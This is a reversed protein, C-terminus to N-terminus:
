QKTENAFILEVVETEKKRREAPVFGVTRTDGKGTITWAIDEMQKLTQRKKETYSSCERIPFPVRHEPYTVMCITVVESERFGRSIHSHMCSECKSAGHMPTGEKVHFAM